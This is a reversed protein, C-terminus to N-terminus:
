MEQKDPLEILDRNRDLQQKRANLINFDVNNLRGNSKNLISKIASSEDTELLIMAQRVKKQIKTFRIYDDLKNFKVPNRRGTESTHILIDKALFDFGNTFNRVQEFFQKEETSMQMSEKAKRNDEPKKDKKQKKSQNSQKGEKKGTEQLSKDKSDLSTIQEGEKKKSLEQEKESIYKNATKEAINVLSHPVLRKLRLPFQNNRMKEIITEITINCDKQIKNVSDELDKIIVKEGLKLVSENIRKRIPSTCPSFLNVFEPKRMYEIIDLRRIEGYQEVM